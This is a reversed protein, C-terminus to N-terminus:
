SVSKTVEGSPLVIRFTTGSGRKTEVEVRGGLARILERCTYLGLGVGNKKTTAFPRFLKDRLFEDSMGPGTDAVSFSVFGEEAPGATITIKGKEVEMAEMANIVLNEIVKEIREDDAIAVLSAPLHTEVEVSAPEVTRALARKIVPVLDVPRPRKFEGSLSRVPESLKSVLSRLKDTAETLSKMADSRFEERDFQQEMNSVLLSLALISNKLDHTLIASLRIFSTFQRSEAEHAIQERLRETMLNFSEALLRTEDSSYVEIREHLKGKAIAVAGETVREINRATRRLHWMLLALMLLLVFITLGTCVWGLWRLDRTAVTEDDAVALALNFSALPQYVALLRDGNSADYFQQGTQGTKMAEAISQFSQPMVSTAPQYMLAHNTHYVVNGAHDLMIVLRRTTTSESNRAPSNPSADVSSAADNLLADLKLDVVLAGRPATASEQGVFVPITYRLASGYSARTLTSRLLKDEATTWVKEDPQISGSLFDKTQFRVASEDKGQYVEARFLPQRDSNLCAVAVFSRADSQLFASVLAQVDRPVDAAKQPEPTASQMYERLISSRALAVLAEEHGRLRAEMERALAQADRQVEGRLEREVGRVGNLYNIVSLAILPLVGLATLIILLKSRTNM